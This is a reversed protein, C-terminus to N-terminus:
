SNTSLIIADRVGIDFTQSDSTYLGGNSGNIAIVDAWSNNQIRASGVYAIAILSRIDNICLGSAFFQTECLKTDNNPNLSFVSSEMTGWVRNIGIRGFPSVGMGFQFG